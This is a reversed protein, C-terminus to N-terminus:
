AKGAPRTPTSSTISMDDSPVHYTLAPRSWTEGLLPTYTPALDPDATSWLVELPGRPSAPSMHSVDLAIYDSGGPGFGFVALHRWQHEEEDAASGGGCGILAVCFPITKNM